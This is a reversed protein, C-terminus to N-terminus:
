DEDDPSGKLASNYWQVRMVMDDVDDDLVLFDQGSHFNGLNTGVETQIIVRDDTIM